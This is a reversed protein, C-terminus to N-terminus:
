LTCLRLRSHDYARQRTYDYAHSTPPTYRRLRTYVYAYMPTPTHLWLRASDYYTHTTTTSYLRLRVYAYAHITTPANFARRPAGQARLRVDAYTPM